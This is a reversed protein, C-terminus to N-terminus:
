IAPNTSETMKWKKERCLLGGVEAELFVLSIARYVHHLCENGRSTLQQRVKSAM